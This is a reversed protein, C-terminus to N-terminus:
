AAEVEDCVVLLIAVDLSATGLRPDSGQCLAKLREGSVTQLRARVRNFSRTGVDRM